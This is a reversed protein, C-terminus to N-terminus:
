RLLLKVAMYKLEDLSAIDAATLGQFNRIHPEAGHAILLKIKRYVDQARTAQYNVNYAAAWHLASNGHGDVVTLDPHVHQLALELYAPAKNVLLGMPTDPEGQRFPENHQYLDIQPSLLIGLVALENGLHAEYPLGALFRYLTSHGHRDRREPDFALGASLLMTLMAEHHNDVAIALGDRGDALEIDLDAGLEILVPLLETDGAAIVKTLATMGTKDAGNIDVGHEIFFRLQETRLSASLSQGIIVLLYNEGSQNILLPDCGGDVLVQLLPWRAGAKIACQLLTKAPEDVNEVHALLAAFGSLLAPDDTSALRKIMQALLEGCRGSPDDYLDLSLLGKQELLLFLSFAQWHRHVNQWFFSAQLAQQIEAATMQTAIAVAKEDEEAQLATLLEMM